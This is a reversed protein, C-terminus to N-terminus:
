NRYCAGDGIHVVAKFGARRQLRGFYQAVEDLSIQDPFMADLHAECAHMDAALTTRMSLADGIVFQLSLEQQFMRGVDLTCAGAQSGVGVVRGGRRVLAFAAALGREGGAADVVM